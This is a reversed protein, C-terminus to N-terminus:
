SWQERQSLGAQFSDYFIARPRPPLPPTTIQASRNAHECMPLQGVSSKCDSSINSETRSLVKLAPPTVRWLLLRVRCCFCFCFFPCLSCHRGGEDNGLIRRPLRDGNEKPTGRGKQRGLGSVMTDGRALAANM